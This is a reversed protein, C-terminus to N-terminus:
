VFAIGVSKLDAVISMLDANDSNVELVMKRIIGDDFCDKFAYLFHEKIIRDGFYSNLDGCHSVKRGTQSLRKGWLHVGGIVERYAKTKELISIYEKETRAHHATYIQPVDYAIKLKLRAKLIADFLASIDGVTSLVFKGGQYVSGCRNEILIETSPFQERIKQEFATYSKIFGSINTYDNFPPHIEIVKPEKGTGVLETIFEAFQTAWLENKWLQPVADKQSAVIEPYKNILASDWKRKGYSYETHLSKELYGSIGTIDFHAAIEEIRLPVDAPYQQGHYKIMEFATM